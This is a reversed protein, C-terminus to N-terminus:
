RNRRVEPLGGAQQHHRQRGLLDNLQGVRGPRLEGPHDRRRHEPKRQVPHLCLPDHQRQDAVWLTTGDSWIGNPFTSGTTDFDKTDDRTGDRNYAYVKDDDFDSIYFTSSNGWIGRPRRNDAAILGDLDDDAKWGYQSNVGRNITVTYARTSGNEATVTVTVTNRGASLDVRHGPTGPGADTASFGINAAPHDAAATITATGVSGAVGVEYSTREPAFGIIDKPGVTLSSLNANASPPMNYSFVKKGGFDVGWMTRGDSTIDAVATNGAGSLTNFDRGSQRQGSQLGYAYLKDDTKDAVWVTYGDSWIGTPDDNDNHLDFERFDQRRGDSLRYAYLRDDADNAVWMTTGDSWIGRAESHDAHLDFDRSPQRSGDSLQFAYLRDDENNSTWLTQGDTWLYYGSVTDTSQSIDRSSLRSGDQRYAFIDTNRASTIWFIGNNEVIGIPGDSSANPGEFVLGDLDDEAKWGYDDTVGRNVSVTYEQETVDDEATVTLTVTNRGASLAVQYGPTVDNSDQSDFSVDANADTPTATITAETVTSAVGVDYAFRGSNFGIIDKPSVTLASLTADDSLPMNYAYAKNDSFDMVWMTAGDSWIDSPHRNQAARLRTFDRSSQPNGTALDYAHLRDTDQDGM